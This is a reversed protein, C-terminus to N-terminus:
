LGVPLQKCKGGKNSSDKQEFTGSKQKPKINEPGLFRHVLEHDGYMMTNEGLVDARERVAQDYRVLSAATYVKSKDVLFRVHKLYCSVSYGQTSLSDVLSLNASLVDEFTRYDTTRSDFAMHPELDFYLLRRKRRDSARSPSRDSYYDDHRGIDRDAARLRHGHVLPTFHTQATHKQLVPDHAIQTVKSFIPVTKTASPVTASLLESLKAM